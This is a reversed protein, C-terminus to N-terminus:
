GQETSLFKNFDVFSTPLDQVQPGSVVLAHAARAELQDRYPEFNPWIRALDEFM